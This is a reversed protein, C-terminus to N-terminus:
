KAGRAVIAECILLLAQRYKPGTDHYRAMIALRDFLEDTTLEPYADAVPAM